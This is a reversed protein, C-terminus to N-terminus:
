AKITWFNTSLQKLNCSLRALEESSKQTQQSDDLNSQAVDRIMGVNREIESSVDLQQEVASTIQTNMEAIRDVTTTIEQLAESAQQAREVTQHAKAQSKRMVETANRSSQQLSALLTQIESVSEQSRQALNRVEEAVVAFGRGHEGARAAEIAANLALLNTKEAIGTIVELISNISNSSSALQDIVSTANEIEDTLSLIAERTQTMITQGNRACTNSGEASTATMQAHQAVEQISAAMESIASAIQETEAQQHHLSESSRTVSATLKEANQDLQEASANIRGAIARAESRLRFLAFELQGAEDDRGTYIRRALPDDSITKRTHEVVQHVPRIIWISLLSTLLAAMVVPVTAGTGTLGSYLLALTILTVLVGAGLLRWLLPIRSLLRPTFAKGSSLRAYLQRARAVQEPKPRTRVSQYEVVKGNEIIPTVYANVWYHDGNKCRNKVLGMWSRGSQVSQWLSRFADTPMDPHRVINHSKGLLESQNFGSIQIFDQNVYTIQGKLDTTSLINANESFAVEHDTVPLNKKM